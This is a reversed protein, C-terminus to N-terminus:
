HPHLAVTQPQASPCHRQGITFPFQPDFYADSVDIDDPSGAFASIRIETSPSWTKGPNEMQWLQSFHKITFELNPHAASNFLYVSGTYYDLTTGFTPVMPNSSQVALAVEYPKPPSPDTPTPGPANPSFGAVIDGGLGTNALDLIAYMQEPGGLGYFETFGPAAAEVAPNVTGANGNDDADGAIVPLSNPSAPDAPGGSLGVSLTDTTADYSVAVVSIDFGSTKIYPQLNPPIIPHQINSNSSNFLVVGPQETAPFDIAVNGTFNVSLLQRHDLQEVAIAPRKATKRGGRQHRRKRAAQLLKSILNM